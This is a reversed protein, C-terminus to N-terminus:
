QITTLHSRNEVGGSPHIRMDNNVTGILEWVSSWTSHVEQWESHGVRAGSCKGNLRSMDNGLKVFTNSVDSDVKLPCWWGLADDDDGSDGGGSGGDYDYDDDDDDSGGGCLLSTPQTVFKRTKLTITAKLEQM